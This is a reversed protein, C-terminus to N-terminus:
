QSAMADRAAKKPCSSCKSAQPAGMTNITPLFVMAAIALVLVGLLLIDWM